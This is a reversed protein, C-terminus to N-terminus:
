LITFSISRTQDAIANSWSAEAIGPNREASKECLYFNATCGSGSNFPVEVNDVRDIDTAIVSGDVCILRILLHGSAVPTEYNLITSLKPSKNYPVAWTAKRTTVGDGATCGDSATSKWVAGDLYQVEWFTPANKNCAAFTFQLSTGARFKKVPLDFEFYDGTWIGKVGVGSLLTASNKGGGTFEIYPRYTKGEPRYASVDNVWHWKCTAVPQSKSVFVGKQPQLNDIYIGDTESNSAPRWLTQTTAHCYGYDTSKMSDPDIADQPYGIPFYVPFIVPVIGDDIRSVQISLSEGSRVQLESDSSLVAMVSTAGDMDTFEVEMGGEPVTFPAVLMQVKGGESPVKWGEAGFDVSVETAGAAASPTFSGTFADLTGSVTLPLTKDAKRFTMKKLTSSEDEFVPDSPISFEIVSFISRFALDITPVVNSTKASAVMPMFSILGDSFNQVAPVSVPINDMSFATEPLPSAAVFSFGHDSRNKMVKDEATEAVLRVSTGSEVARFTAIPHSSMSSGEEGDRTCTAAIGFATGTPIEMLASASFNVEFEDQDFGRNNDENQACSFLLSLPISFLIATILKKM